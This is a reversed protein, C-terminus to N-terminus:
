TNVFHLIGNVQILFEEIPVMVRVNNESNNTLNEYISSTKVPGRRSKTFSKTVKSVDPATAKTVPPKKRRGKRIPKSITVVEHPEIPEWSEELPAKPENLFDEDTKRKKKSDSADKVDNTLNECPSM